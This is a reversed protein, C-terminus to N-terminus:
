RDPDAAARLLCKAAERLQPVESLDAIMSQAATAITTVVTQSFVSPSHIGSSGGLTCRAATGPTDHPDPNFVAKAAASRPQLTNALILMLQGRVATANRKDVITPLVFPVLTNAVWASDRELYALNLSASAIDNLLLLSRVGQERAAIKVKGTRQCADIRFLPDWDGNLTVGNTIATLWADCPLTDVRSQARASASAGFTLLTFCICRKLQSM